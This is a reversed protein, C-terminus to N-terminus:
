KSYESRKFRATWVWPNAAYSGRGNIADFLGEFWWVPDCNECAGCGGDINALCDGGINTTVESGIGATRADEETIGQVRKCTVDICEVQLRSAWQPMVASSRWTQGSPVNGFSAHYLPKYHGNEGCPESYNEMWTERVWRVDGPFFIPSRVWTLPGGKKHQFQVGCGLACKTVIPNTADDLNLWERQAKTPKVKRVVLVDGSAQLRKIEHSKLIISKM